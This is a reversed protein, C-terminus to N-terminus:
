DTLKGVPSLEAELMDTVDTGSQHKHTFIRRHFHGGCENCNVFRKGLCMPCPQTHAWKAEFGM